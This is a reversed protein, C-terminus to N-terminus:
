KRLINKSMKVLLFVLMRKILLAMYGGQGLIKLTYVGFIAYGRCM